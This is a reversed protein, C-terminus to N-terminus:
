TLKLHIAFHNLKIYMYIRYVKYINKMNKEKIPMCFIHEECNTRTLGFGRM